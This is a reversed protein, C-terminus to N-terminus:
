PTHTEDKAHAEFLSQVQPQLAGNKLHLDRQPYPITIGHADLTLKIQEPLGFRVQRFDPRKVWVWVVFNVSSDGFDSVAVFPAPEELVLPNEAVLTDLVQKVHRVDDDYSVGITLDVRRTENASYNTIAGNMIDSNPVILRLNEPTNMVTTLMQIELVSGLVGGAEIFDGQKFPRFIILLVGAALNSLSGQLALGIALGAAGLIALISTTEIGLRGLAMLVAFVMVLISAIHTIFNIVTQEIHAATMAREILRSVFRALWRGILVIVIAFILDRIPHYTEFFAVFEDM